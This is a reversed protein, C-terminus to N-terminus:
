NSVGPFITFKKALRAVKTLESHGGRSRFTLWIDANEDSLSRIVGVLSSPLTIEGKFTTVVHEITNYGVIPKSIRAINVVFPILFMDKREAVGFTLVGVGEVGLETQHAATLYM